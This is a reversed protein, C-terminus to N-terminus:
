ATMLGPPHKGARNQEQRQTSERKMAAEHLMEVIQQNVTRFEEESWTELKAYLDASLRLPEHAESM